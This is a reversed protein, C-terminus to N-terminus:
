LGTLDARCVAALVMVLVRSADRRRAGAPSARFDAGPPNKCHNWFSRKATSKSELDEQGSRHDLGHGSIPVTLGSARAFAGGSTIPVAMAVGLANIPGPTIIVFRHRDKM